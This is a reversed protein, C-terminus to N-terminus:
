KSTSGRMTGKFTPLEVTQADYHARVQVPFYGLDKCAIDLGCALIKLLM